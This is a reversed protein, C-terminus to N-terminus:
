YFGESHQFYTTMLCLDLLPFICDMHLQNQQVPHLGTAPPEEGDKGSRSHSYM